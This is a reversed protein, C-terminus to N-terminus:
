AICCNRKRWILYGFDEAVKPLEKRSEFTMTTKGFQQCTDPDPNVMQYRYISKKMILSKRKHCTNKMETAATEEALGLRHMKYIIREAANTSAQVGGKHGNINGNMPYMSGQCGSCWFMEDRALSVNASLCDAACATQALINNFLFAEPHIISSLEDDLGMPDLESLYAIDFSTKELCVFDTLLELWYLLPYIYYHVHWNSIQSSAAKSRAGMGRKIGVDMTMGGMNTFCYPEHSVDVMRAPEWFGGIIGVRLPDTCMCVPSSPNKTDKAVGSDHLEIAGLTIPFICDWCVDTIPNVFKGTCRKASAESANVFFLLFALFM